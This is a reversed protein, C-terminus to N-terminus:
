SLRSFIHGQVTGLSTATTPLDSQGGLSGNTRPTLGNIGILGLRGSFANITTGVCIVGIGYRTGANLTYTSPYGGTTNLSRQYATNTAAFLSTDSACRAVLTATNEDFTYLGMRSLTLGSAAVSGSVITISSATFSVFPTFFTFFVTGSAPQITNSAAEGRPYVDCVGSLSNLYASVSAYSAVSSSLRADALTGSTIQSAALALADAGGSAHSSAHSTPTRANTLAATVTSSLRDDAITGTLKSAAVSAIKADTVAADAIDATVVANAAIKATTISGDAIKATTVSGDTPTRADSLRADNGACYNTSGTGATPLGTIQSAALTLADIGGSAHSSAHSTPTRANTLATTVTASLRADALTGSTIADASHVHSAAAAGISAPTIADSGGTAHTSAHIAGGGSVGVEVYVPSEWQYIRSTDEALYLSTSSGTAPFDTISSYVLSAAPGQPGTAGTAGAVGTPGTVTSAAGQSGTAGTPGTINSAAGAPGAAGTPGTVTSAAGTAGTPGTISAGAPGVSGAAGTPGTVSQGAAGDSGRAGTAGTAGVLGSDGRQGAAGTPGTISQGAVGDIGRAGTPGTSGQQGSAGAPGTISQGAAGDIGRAGTPGTAGVGGAIGTPGTAGVVSAGTPGPVTSVAGTPGTPGAVTSAAGTPGVPGAEGQSGAQGAAGRPGTPGVGALQVAFTQGNTILPSVGTAGTVSVTFPAPGTVSVRIDSM